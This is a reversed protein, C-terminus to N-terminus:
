RDPKMTPDNKGYAEMLADYRKVLETAIANEANAYGLTRAKDDADSLDIQPLDAMPGWFNQYDPLEMPALGSLVIGCGCHAVVCPEPGALPKEMPRRDYMCRQLRGERTLYLSRYGARCPVGRFDRIRTMHPEALLQHRVYGLDPFTLLAREEDTYAHPYQKGEYEGIFNTPTFPVGAAAFKEAYPRIRDLRTPHAIFISLFNCGAEVLHAANEIYKDLTEEGEPHLAARILLRHATERPLWRKPNQSNNTPFSVAGRSSCIRILDPFQPHVTPEGGGCELTTIILPSDIQDYAAAVADLDFRQVPENNHGTAVCYSCRYNCPNRVQITVECADSQSRARFQKLFPEEPPVFKLRGAAARPAITRPDLRLAAEYYRIADDHRGAAEALLGAAYNDELGVKVGFVHAVSAGNESVNRLVVETLSSLDTIPLLLLEREGPGIQREPGIFQQDKDLCGVGFRGSIVELDVAIRLAPDPELDVPMPFSVAFAWRAPPTTVEVSGDALVTLRTDGHTIGSHHPDFSRILRFPGGDVSAPVGAPDAFSIQLGSRVPFTQSPSRGPTVVFNDGDLSLVEDVGQDRLWELAKSYSQNRRSLAHNLKVIITPKLTRITERAGLLVEFDFSNVDIKICDLRDIGNNRVMDDLRYFPYVRREPDDGPKGYISDEVNGTKSGLAVRIAQVNECKNHALNEQLLDATSTPEFAWVQGKPALRSFLASYCGVNAGVDFIVWDPRVNKVFWYKTEPECNPYYWALEDYYAILEIPDAGPVFSQIPIQRLM